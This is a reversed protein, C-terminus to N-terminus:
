FDVRWISSAIDAMKKQRAEVKRENWTNYHEAVARTLQFDSKRYAELKVAYEANGIDRNADSELLTMNGLRYIMDEQINEAIDAWEEAPHEPLIHELTYKASEEDFDRESLQRELRFLVHRMVKKNRGSTTKLKKGTFALKFQDEMPYVPKMAEIVQRPQAYVGGSVKAAIDNYLSEQNGTHFGCIVNYRFAIIATARMIKTFGLRDAEYFRGYCALLMALPQQVNYMKLQELAQKEEKNWTADTPDRLTAYVAASQDLDRLLEFAKGKNNISQKITKFLDGKRVLKHRSNWFVRLFEQFTEQGLLGIIREWRDELAALETAHPNEAGVLSFLYNKLLDSASLRVGRANLTEFVRFANLEDTVTIVTFCLKDVLKDLFYTLKRGSDEKMGYQDQIKALFWLFVKRLQHESVNLGRQPLVALPVLYNQYFRNNHRNLELKAKANLTVPDLYGIYSNRLQEIRKTNNEADLGTAVLEQLHKLLALVLVSLTALRQQGDIVDFNKSDASQLVLYGMYHAPESDQEFLGSIDQWLDDWEDETWSYDRQFPPVRYSLGNGMLHRFTKNSTDFNMAM